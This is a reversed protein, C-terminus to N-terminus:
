RGGHSRLTVTWQQGSPKKLWQKEGCDPLQSLRINLERGGQIGELVGAWPVPGQM